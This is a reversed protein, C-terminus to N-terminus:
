SAPAVPREVRGPRAPWGRDFPRDCHRGVVVQQKRRALDPQSLPSATTRSVCTSNHHSALSARNDMGAFSAICIAVVNNILGIDNQSDGHENVLTPDREITGRHLPGTIHESSSTDRVRM